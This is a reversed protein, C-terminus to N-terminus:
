NLNRKASKMNAFRVRMKRNEESLLNGVDIGYIQKLSYNYQLANNIAIIGYNGINNDYIYLEQLSTNVKLAESIAITGHDGINNCYLNLEILSADNNQLRNIYDEM